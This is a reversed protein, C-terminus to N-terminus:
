LYNNWGTNWQNISLFLFITITEVSEWRNFCKSLGSVEAAVIFDRPFYFVKLFERIFFNMEGNLRITSFVVFREFENLPWVEKLSVM